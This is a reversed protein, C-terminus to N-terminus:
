KVVVMRRTLTTGGMSLRYLYIGSTLHSADLLAEHRGASRIEDALVAVEQGLINYVKLTVHAAAPVRYGVVTHPNFPNPYNQFLALTRPQAQEREPTKAVPRNTGPDSIARTQTSTLTYNAALTLYGVLKYSYLGPQVVWYGLAEPNDLSASSAVEVGNQDLLYLDIDVGGTWGLEASLQVTNDHVQFPILRTEVLGLASPGMTGTFTETEDTFTTTGPFLRGDLWVKDLSIRGTLGRIECVHDQNALNGFASQVGWRPSDSYYNVTGRSVGDIFVEAIGGREDTPYEFKINTGFFTM